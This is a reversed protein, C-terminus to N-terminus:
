PGLDISQARSTVKTVIIATVAIALTVLVATIVVQEATTGREDHRLTQLRAVLLGATAHIWTLLPDM